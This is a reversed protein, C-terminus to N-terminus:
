GPSCSVSVSGNQSTIIRAWNSAAHSTMRQGNATLMIIPMEPVAKFGVNYTNREIRSFTQFNNILWGVPANEVWFFTLKEGAAAM